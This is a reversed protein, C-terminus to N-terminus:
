NLEVVKGIRDSNQTESQNSQATDNVFDFVPYIVNSKELLKSAVNSLKINIKQYPSVTVIDSLIPKEDVFVLTPKIKITDSTDNVLAFEISSINIKSDFDSDSKLLAELRGSTRLLFKGSTYHFYIDSQTQVPKNNDKVIALPMSFNAYDNWSEDQTCKNYNATINRKSLETQIEKISEEDCSTVNVKLDAMVVKHEESLIDSVNISTFLKLNCAMLAMICILSLAKKM